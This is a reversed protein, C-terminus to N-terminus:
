AELLEFVGEGMYQCTGGVYVGTIRGSEQSDVDIRVRMYSPRGMEVGQESVFEVTESVKVRGYRVLYCGLPGNAGGTAPDEAVGLAPAFMRCHVAVESNSPVDQTFALIQPAIFDKLEREWIDLRLHIAQMAAMTKVPVFLFPVGCSVVELPLDVVLDDVQLSLMEAITERAEFRPGFQPLPQRMQATLSQAQADWRLRVPVEGVGEEFRILTEENASWKIFQKHALVFATGITPHGAMPLEASPTFIRVRYDASTESPLIFTTESLNLEKALAQMESDSLGRGDSFVALPNGGFPRDTFVDVLSYAYKRM